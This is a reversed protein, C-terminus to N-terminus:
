PTGRTVAADPHLAYLAREVVAEPSLNLELDQRAQLWQEMCWRRRARQADRQGGAGGAAQHAAREARLLLGLGLDIFTAAQLRASARATKGPFEGELEWFADAAGRESRVGAAVDGFLRQMGLAGQSRLTLGRGPSGQALAVLETLEGGEAGGISLEPDPSLESDHELEALLIRRVAEEELLPFEVATTRSRVTALLRAPVSCELVLVTGPAPEELVKLLANQAAENMRECERILVIRYGGELARLLLFDELAPGQYADKPREDRHSIFHITIQDQRHERADIVFLDPHNGSLMRKCPGCTGCPAGPAGGAEKGRQCLLGQAFWRAARFKGVGAPGRFLLAHPLREGAAARWLGEIAARHGLLEPVSM